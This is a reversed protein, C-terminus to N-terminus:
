DFKFRLLGVVFFLAAMGLLVLVPVIAGGIGANRFILANYADMAWAIPSIHGAVRMWGPVIDLPWWAGGLPALTLALLLNVSSARMETTVFTTLMLALGTAALIFSWMTLILALPDSGYRLGLLYGFGFIISLQIVGIVFYGLLKGGLIQARSVPMTLVRQITWQRRDRIFAASMPLVAFLVYMSGMGPVSQGFGSARITGAVAPRTERIQIPEAAWLAQARGRIADLLGSRDAADAFTLYGISDVVAQGAHVATQVSSIRSIATQVAQLALSPETAPENSRYVITIPEGTSSAAAFGAPIEILATSTQDDLRQQALGMTLTQGNLECPDADSTAQAPCLRVATNAAVIQRLLESSLPSADHDIVDLNVTDIAAAAGGGGNAFGLVFTIILPIIVLNLWISRDMFQLRLENGAIVFISRM